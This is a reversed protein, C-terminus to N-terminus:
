SACADDASLCLRGSGDHVLYNQGGLTGNNSGNATAKAMLEAAGVLCKSM